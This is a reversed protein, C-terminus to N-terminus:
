GDLFTGTTAAAAASGAFIAAGTDDPPLSAGVPLHVLYILELVIGVQAGAHFNGFIAGMLTAAVLPRHLMLQCAATRDLYCVGGLIGALLFRWLM